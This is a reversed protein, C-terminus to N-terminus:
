KVKTCHLRALGRDSNRSSRKGSEPLWLEFGFLAYVFSSKMATKTAATQTKTNADETPYPQPYRPQRCRIWAVNPSSSHFPSFQIDGRLGHTVTVKV